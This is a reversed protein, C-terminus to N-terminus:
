NEGRRLAGPPISVTHVLPMEMLFLTGLKKGNLEVPWDLKVNDQAIFLTAEGRNTESMFRRVLGPGDPTKNAFEEWEPEIGSRLHFTGADIVQTEAGCMPPLSLLLGLCLAPGARNFWVTKNPQM